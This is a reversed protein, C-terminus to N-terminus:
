AKDGEQDHARRAKLYLVVTAIEFPANFVGNALEGLFRLATGEHRSGLLMVAVAPVGSLLWLLLLVWFATARHGFMLAASRELPDFRRGKSRELVVVPTVVAYSLMRLIGPVVLLVFFVLVWIGALIQALLLPGWARLAGGLAQAPTPRKGEVHGAAVLTVAASAFYGVFLAYLTSWRWYELGEMEFLGTAAAFAGWPLQFLLVLLLVPGAIEALLAFTDRLVAGVSLPEALVRHEKPGTDPRRKARRVV